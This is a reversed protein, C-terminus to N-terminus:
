NELSLRESVAKYDSLDLNELERAQAINGKPVMVVKWKVSPLYTNMIYTENWTGSRLSVVMYISKNRYVFRHDLAGSAGGGTITEEFPLMKIGKANDAYALVAGSLDEINSVMFFSEAFRLSIDGPRKFNLYVGGGDSYGTYSKWYSTAASSWGLTIVNANGDDGKDGKPGKLSVGAPWVNTKPGFLAGSSTNFYFDGASGITNNPNNAGSLFQSGAAGTQGTAGTQGAPGTAGNQGAPGTQGPAGTQGAPGTAGTDGKMSSATGWGTAVKPGYLNSNQKDIYFDGVKGTAVAPAGNGHHIMQGDTGPIGQKGEVGQVGEPGVSGKKSCSSFGVVLAVLFLYIVNRKM